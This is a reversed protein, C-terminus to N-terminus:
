PTELKKPPKRSRADARPVIGTVWWRVLEKFVKRPIDIKQLSRSEGWHHERLEVSRGDISLSFPGVCVNDHSLKCVDGLTKANMPILRKM